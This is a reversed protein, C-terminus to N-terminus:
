WPNGIDKSLLALKQWQSIMVVTWFRKQNVRSQLDTKPVVRLVYPFDNQSDISLPIFLRESRFRM